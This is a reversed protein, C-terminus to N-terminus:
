NEWFNQIDLFQYDVEPQSDEFANGVILTMGKKINNPNFTFVKIGADELGKQTFTYKEIDSGEVTCGMDKVVLAMASMGTGKIGVFYYTTNKDIKLEPKTM